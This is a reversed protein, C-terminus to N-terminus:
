GESWVCHAAAAYMGCVGGVMRPCWLVCCVVVWHWETYLEGGGLKESDARDGIGFLVMSLRFSESGLGSKVMRLGCGCVFYLQIVCVALKLTVIVTVCGSQIVCM